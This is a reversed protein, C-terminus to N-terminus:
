APTLVAFGELYFIETRSEFGSDTGIVIWLRGANDATLLLADEPPVPSSPPQSSTSLSKIRYEGNSCTGGGGTFDGIVVMERGSTAQNGKDINTVVRNNEVRKAPAAAAAGAKISVGEGPSGGAGVCDAPVNSAFTIEIEVHYRQGPTLGTVQRYIYMFLDDSRNTGAVLLGSRNNLPSPLGRLDSLFHIGFEGQEMGPTYEAFDAM